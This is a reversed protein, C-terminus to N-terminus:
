ATNKLLRGITNDSIAEAIGLEIIKEELLRLTWRVRGELPAGCCLVIIKAETEGTIKSPVPPPARKKRNLVAELGESAYQKSVDYVTVTSVGCLKAVDAQERKEGLGEDLNLMINARTISRAAYTGRKMM